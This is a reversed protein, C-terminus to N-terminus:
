DRPVFGSSPAWAGDGTDTVDKFLIELQDARKLGKLKLKKTWWEDSADITQKIPDWGLGTEKRTLNTWIQRDKKLSDWKNKFQKYTYDRGTMDVFKNIISKWGVRNFHGHQRNGALAEDVCIRIFVKSAQDNWEAKARKQNEERVNEEDRKIRRRLHWVFSGLLVVAIIASIPTVVAIWARNEKRERREEGPMNTSPPTPMSPPPPLPINRTDNNPTTGNYFPYLDWRFLCNPGLFGGGKKGYCCSKYDSVYQRLCIDCDEQSLDPTCQMQAYITEFATLNAEETAYRFRSYSTSTKRSLSDTLNGWIKGFQTMDSTLDARNSFKQKPELELKGSFSRDAYRVICLAQAVWMYAEKQNPCLTTIIQSTSNICRACQEPSIDGRCLALAYVEDSGQGTSDTFFGNNSQVETVLSSLINNRNNAYNSNTTFNGTDYCYQGYQCTTFSISILVYSLVSLFHMFGM